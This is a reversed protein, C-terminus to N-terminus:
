DLFKKSETMLEEIIGKNYVKYDYKYVDVEDDSLNGYNFEKDFREIIVTQVETNLSSKFVDIEKSERIHFFGLSNDPMKEACYVLYENPQNNYNISLQKL